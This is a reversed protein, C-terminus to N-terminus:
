LPPPEGMGSDDLGSSKSRTPFRRPSAQSAAAFGVGSPACPSPSALAGLEAGLVAGPAGLGLAGLEGLPCSADRPSTARSTAEAQGSVTPSSIAALEEATRSFPPVSTTDVDELTQACVNCYM